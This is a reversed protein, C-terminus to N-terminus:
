DAVKVLLKRGNQAFSSRRHGSPHDLEEGGLDAVLVGPFGVGVGDTSEEVPGVPV